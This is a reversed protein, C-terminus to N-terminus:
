NEENEQDVDEYPNELYPGHERKSDERVYNVESVSSSLWLSLKMIVYIIALPLFCLSLILANKM